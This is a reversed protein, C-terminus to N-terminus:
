CVVLGGYNNLEEALHLKGASKAKDALSKLMKCAVLASGIQDPCDKWFFEALSMRSFFAAWVFLERHPQDLNEAFL